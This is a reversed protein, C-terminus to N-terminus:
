VILRLSDRSINCEGDSTMVTAFQRTLAVIECVQGFAKALMGVAPAPVAAAVQAVQAQERKAIVRSPLKVNEGSRMLRTFLGTPNWIRCSETQLTHIDKLVTSVREPSNLFRTIAAMAVSPKVKAKEALQPIDALVAIENSDKHEQKKEVEFSMCMLVSDGAGALCRRLTRPHVNPAQAYVTATKVGTLAMAVGALAYADTASSVAVEAPELAESLAAAAAGFALAIGTLLNM